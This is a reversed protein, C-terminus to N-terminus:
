KTDEFWFPLIISGGLAEIIGVDLIVTTPKPYTKYVTYSFPFSLLFVSWFPGTIARWDMPNPIVSKVVGFAVSHGILVQWYYFGLGWDITLNTWDDGFLDHWLPNDIIISQNKILPGTSNIHIGTRNMHITIEKLHIIEIAATKNGWGYPFTTGFPAFYAFTSCFVGVYPEGWTWTTQSRNGQPNDLADTFIKGMAESIELINEITFSTPLIGANRLIGIEQEIFNLKDGPSQVNPMQKKLSEVANLLTNAESETLNVEYSIRSTFEGQVDEGAGMVDPFGIEVTFTVNEPEINISAIESDDNINWIKYNKLNQADNPVAASICLFIVGMVLIIQKNKMIM